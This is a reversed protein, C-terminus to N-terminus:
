ITKPRPTGFLLEDMERNHYEEYAEVVFRRCQREGDLVSAFCSACGGVMRCERTKGCPQPLPRNLQSLMAKVIRDLASVTEGM